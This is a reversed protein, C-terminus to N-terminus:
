ECRYKATYVIEVSANAPVPVECSAALGRDSTFAHSSEVIKQSAPDYLTVIVPDSMRNTLVVKYTRQHENTRRDGDFAIVTRLAVVDRSRGVMVRVLEGPPIDAFGGRGILSLTGDPEESKVTIAGGALYEGLGGASDNRFAIVLGATEHNRPSRDGCSGNFTIMHEVRVPVASAHMFEVLKTQGNRVPAPAIDFGQLELLPRRDGDLPAGLRGPPTLPNVESRDSESGSRPSAMGSVLRVNADAFTRSSRNVIEAFATLQAHSGEQPLTLVYSPTWMLESAVYSVELSRDGGQADIRATVTGMMRGGPTRDAGYDVALVEFRGLHDVARVAPTHSEILPLALLEVDSTGEVVVQRRVERVWAMERYLVIDVSEVLPMDLHSRMLPTPLPIANAISGTLLTLTILLLAARSHM